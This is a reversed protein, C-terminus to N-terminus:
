NLSSFYETLVFVVLWGVPQVFILRLGLAVAGFCSIRGHIIPAQEGPQFRAAGPESRAFHKIWDRATPVPSVSVSM